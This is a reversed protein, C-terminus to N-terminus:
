LHGLLMCCFFLGHSCFFITEKRKRAYPFIRQMEDRRKTENAACARRDGGEGAMRTALLRGQPGIKDGTTADFPAVVDSAALFRHYCFSTGTGAMYVCPPLLFILCSNWCFCLMISAFHSAPELLLLITTAFNPQNWCFVFM